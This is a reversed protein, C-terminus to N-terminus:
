AFVAPIAYRMRSLTPPSRQAARQSGQVRADLRFNTGPDFQQIYFM